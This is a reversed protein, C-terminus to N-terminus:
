FLFLVYASPLVCTPYNVRGSACTGCTSGSFRINCTCQCFTNNGSVVVRFSDANSNCQAQTCQVVLQTTPLPTEGFTTPTPTAVCSPYTGVFGAACTECTTGGIGSLCNCFCQGNVDTVQLAMGSCNSTITCTPATQMFGPPELVTNISQIIGNTAPTDQLVSTFVSLGNSSQHIGGTQFVMRNSDLTPFTGGTTFDSKQVYLPVIHYALLQSLFLPNNLLQQLRVSGYQEFASNSPALVSFPGSTRLTTALNVRSVLSNFTSFSNGLGELIQLVNQTPTGISQPILVSSLVHVVGNQSGLDPTSITSNVGIQITRGNVRATLRQGLMTTLQNQPLEVSAFGSQGPHRLIIHHQLVLRQAVTNRLIWERVGSQLSQFAFNTPAFVTFPGVDALMDLLSGGNPAVSRQLLSAFVSTQEHISLTRCVTNANCLPQATERPTNPVFGSPNPVPVPGPVTNTNPIMINGTVHVVGNSASNDGDIIGASTLTDYGGHLRPYSVGGSIQNSPVIQGVVIQHMLINRLQANQGLLASSQSMAANSPAFVTFPGGNNSILDLIGQGQLLQYFTTTRSDDRIVACVTNGSCPQFPSSIPPAAVVGPIVGVMGSPILVMDVIHLFGNTAAINPFQIRAVNNVIMNVLQNGSLSRFYLPDGQLSQVTGLRLLDNTRLSQQQIIHNRLIRTLQDRPLQQLRQIGYSSLASDSPALVTISPSTSFQSILGVSVLLQVFQRLNGYNRMVVDLTTTGPQYPNQAGPTGVPGFNPPATPPPFWQVPGWTGGWTPPPQTFIPVGPHWTVPVGVTGPPNTQFLGNGTPSLVADLTYIIGNSAITGGPNLITAHTNLVNNQFTVVQPTLITQISGSGSLGQHLGNAVHYRMVNVFNPDNRQLLLGVDINQRQFAADTPAFVTWPGPRELVHDIQSEIMASIFAGFQNGNNKLTTMIDGRVSGTPPVGPPATAIPTGINGTIPRIVEDVVHVIGNVATLDRLRVFTNGNIFYRNNLVTTQISEGSLTPVPSWSVLDQATHRRNIIYRLLESRSLATPLLQLGANSVAIVTLGFNQLLMDVGTRQLASVFLTLDRDFRLIDMVSNMLVTTPTPVGVPPFLVNPIPTSVPVQGPVPAAVDSPVLVKDIIHIIGDSGIRDTADVDAIGNIVIDNTVRSISYVLNSGYINALTGPSNSRLNSITYYGSVIHNQVIRVYDQNTYTATRALEAYAADSFAFITYRNISSSPITGFLNSQFIASFRRLDQRLSIITRITDLQQSNNDIVQSIVHLLGNSAQRDPLTFGITSGIIVNGGLTQIGPSSSLSSQLVRGSVLHNRVFQTAENSDTRLQQLRSGVVGIFASDSPALVTVQQSNSSLLSIVNSRQVIQNFITMDGRGQILQLLTVGSSCIGNSCTGTVGNFSCSSGDIRISAVCQRISSCIGNNHCSSPAPCSSGTVTCSQANSNTCVGSQCSGLSCPSGNQKLTASCQLTSSCTGVNHCETPTCQVGQISCTSGGVSTCVGNQCQRSLSCPSGNVKVTAVCQLTNSCTGDNHCESPASCLTGQVSCTNSNVRTCLGNQCQGLSCPSGNIRVTATCQLNANCIGNNHCETPATCQTGQVVCSGRNTTICVGNQCQGLSCSFGNPRLTAVCQLSASCTGVNHCESPANCQVGQVTCTTSSVSTCVGGVCQRNLSCPSGNIRISAICQSNASCTGVNHCESRTCQSGQVACNGATTATCIGNQCFRNLSCPIGNSKVTAICRLTSDCLGINHCESPANCQNGQVTCGGSSSTSTCVGNQCQRNLSCRTGSTKVTAVCQLSSSCVGFNHCESPPNCQTGQLTCTNTNTPTTCVGNQCQRNQSCPSGNTKLSSVCQLNSDCTGINHCESTASCQVGQLTCATTSISCVGSRCRRNLSCSTGDAKIQASCRLSSDCTGLQHCESPTCQSGQVTCSNSSGQCVGTRCQRGQSCTTGDTKFSAICQLLSNCTGSLHCETPADCIQGQATCSSQPSTNVCAGNRCNGISCPSGNAKSSATCQLSIDCTGINHCESPAPCSQGISTCARCIGSSCRGQQSSIVCPSGDQKVSATCTNGSGCVGINHCASPAPCASGFPCTQTTGCVGAQCQRMTNTTSDLCPSGNPRLTAICQGQTNCIGSQHCSSPAPCSGGTSCSSCIGNNCTSSQGSNTTCFSGNPKMTSVCRGGSGSCSGRNFCPGAAPCNSCQNSCLQECTFGGSHQCNFPMNPITGVCECFGSSSSTIIASCPLDGSPLRGGTSVCSTTARWAVCNTGGNTNSVCTGTRCVGISCVSGDAIVPNTCRRITPNCTGPSHCESIATCQSDLSCTSGQGASTTMDCPCAFRLDSRRYNAPDTAGAGSFSAPFISNQLPSYSEFVSLVSGAAQSVGSSLLQRMVGVGIAHSFVRSNQTCTEGCTAGLGSLYWCRNQTLLGGGPCNAVPTTPGGGNFSGVCIGNVCRDNVTFQNSDTCPTGDNLQPDSCTGSVSNCVGVGRCPGRSVCTQQCQSAAAATCTPFRTSWEGRATVGCTVTECLFGTRRFVCTSLHNVTSGTSCQVGGTGTQPFSPLAQPPFQILDFLCQGGSSAILAALSLARLM